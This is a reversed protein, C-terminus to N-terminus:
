LHYTTLSAPRFAAAVSFICLLCLTVDYDVLSVSQLVTINNDCVEWTFSMHLHNRCYIMLGYAM